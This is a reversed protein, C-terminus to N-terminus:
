QKKPPRSGRMPETVVYNTPVTPNFVSDDIKPNMVANTFDNRLYSGDPFFLQSSRMSFDNTGFGLLFRPIFRRAEASKPELVVELVGNTVQESQTVFRADVDSRSRPFGTELLALADRWQGTQEATLPYREARRPLPYILLLETPTRVAITRPPNGLEWRFLNPEKFWLKGPATLPHTLSKLSRTQVFDATWTHIKAQSEPWAAPTPAPTSYPWTLCFATIIFLGLPRQTSRRRPCLCSASGAKQRNSGALDARLSVM